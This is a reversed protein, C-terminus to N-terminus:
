AHVERRRRLMWVNMALFSAGLVIFATGRIVFSIEPDFFRATLVALMLLLGGNATGLEGRGIARVCVTLGVALAFLNVALMIATGYEDRFGLMWAPAFVLPTCALLGREWDGKALLRLGAVSSFLSLLLAVGLPILLATYGHVDAEWHWRLNWAEEFSCVVLLVGLGLAGFVHFPRRWAATDQGSWRARSSGFAYFSGLLGAYLPAWLYIEPWTGLRILAVALSACVAWGLLASRPEYRRVFHLWLLLPLALAVFVLYKWYSGLLPEPWPGVMLWSTAGAWTLVAAVRSRLLYVVPLTLVVWFLLLEQL